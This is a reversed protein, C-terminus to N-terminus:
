ARVWLVVVKVWCVVLSFFIGVQKQKDEASIEGKDKKNKKKGVKKTGKMNEIEEKFYPDNMDIDSPIDDDSFADVVEEDDGNVKKDKKKLKRKEKKKELFEEFPTKSERIKAADKVKEAAKQELKLDWTVEMAVDEKKTEETKELDALLSKYKEIASKESIEKDEM